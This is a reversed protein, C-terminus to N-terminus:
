KANPGSFVRAPTVSDGNSGPKCPHAAPLRVMVELGPKRNRCAVSGHCAEISSKVIALGLGVGGTARERASELRYFPEFIAELDKEPVGPGQDSVFLAVTDGDATASIDIPGAAGAYRVANRVVNSLARVFFERDARIALHKDVSSRIQAGNGEREVVRDVADALPVDTIAPEVTRRTTRSFALVDDVLTNMHEVDERLDSLVQTQEPAASRELLGLAVQIRAIPSRLEHAADRLFRKQGNVLRDLHSAMRQISASLEGLEDGRDVPLGDEFRGEAIGATAGAMRSIAGKLGRVFPLWCALSIVIVICGIVIWPRTDAYFLDDKGSSALVIWTRSDRRDAALRGIPAPVAVWQRDPNSTRGLFVLEYDDHHHGRSRRGILPEHWALFRERIADPLPQRDGALAAGRADVVRLEVRNASAYTAILRDWEAPDSEGLQLALLRSAALIRDHAPSLLFSEFDLRFELRILIFFALGLLVLNVFAVFLVKTLLTPRLKM